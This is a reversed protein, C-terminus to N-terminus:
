ILLASTDVPVVPTHAVKHQRVYTRLFEIPVSNPDQGEPLKCIKRVTFGELAPFIAKQAKVGASDADMMLIVRDPELTLLLELKQQSWNNTGLISLAPIGLRLLRLADRPGEVLVIDRSECNPLMAEVVNYPFLGYDKVWDGPMNKYKLLSKSSLSANIAGCFEDQVIVPLICVQLENRGDFALWAGIDYMFQGKFGRWQKVTLWPTAFEINWYDFVGSVDLTEPQYEVRRPVWTEVQQLDASITALGLKKALGNWGGHTSSQASCGFCHYTGISYKQGASTVIYMSPDVENHFPCPIAVSKTKKLSKGLYKELQQQIAIEYPKLVAM